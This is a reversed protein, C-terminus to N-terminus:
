HSKTAVPYTYLTPNPHFAIFTNNKRELIQIKSQKEKM